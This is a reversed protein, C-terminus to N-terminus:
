DGSGPWTVAKGSLRSHPHGVQELYRLGKTVRTTVPLIEEATFAAGKNKRTEIEESLKRPIDKYLLYFKTNPSCSSGKM